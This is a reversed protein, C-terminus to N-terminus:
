RKFTSMMKRKEIKWVLVVKIKKVLKIKLKHTCVYMCIFGFCFNVRVEPQLSLDATLASVARGSSELEIGLVWLECASCSGTAGAGRAGGPPRM